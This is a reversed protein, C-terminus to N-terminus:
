NMSDDGGQLIGHQEVIRDEVVQLVAIDLSRVILHDLCGLHGVDM